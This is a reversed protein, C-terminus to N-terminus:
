RRGGGGRKRAKGKNFGLKPLRWGPGKGPGQRFQLEEDVGLGALDGTARPGQKLRWWIRACAQSLESLLSPEEEAPVGPAASLARRGPLQSGGAFAIAFILALVMTRLNDQVLAWLDAGNPGLRQQRLQQQVREAEKLLARKVEPLPRQLANATLTPGQVAALQQQLEPLSTAGAVVQRVREIAQNARNRQRLQVARTVSIGNWVAYGQVPVLLLFGLAAVLAWRRVLRRQDALRQNHPQLNAALHLLGFGTIAVAGNATIVGVMRLQWAPSLIQLPLAKFLVEVVFVALLGTAILALLSADPSSRQIPTNDSPEFM